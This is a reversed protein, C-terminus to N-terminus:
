STTALFALYAAYGVLLLAAELRTLRFGTRALPLLLLAAGVMVALDLLRMETGVLPRVLAAVGIIGLINFVNSGVVNGVAIDGEGRVTALVSTALEPLSTGIAVITLGIVADSVGVSRALDTGGSVLFRAGAVLLGLGVAILLISIGLSRPAAPTGEAFEAQVPVSERRAIRLSMVTYSILGTLLLAGEVRGIADDLLMLVFVISAAIMLPVDLRVVQAHVALPRIVASLGLILAINGINSGVVNGVAIPALGDLTAGVSVVLEPMSTGFAVVTLGIVLPTLGLRTAVAVSGRVLGEAGFYLLVVGGLIFLLTTAM